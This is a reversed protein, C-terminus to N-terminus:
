HRQKVVLVTVPSERVVSESVSGLMLRDFGKRGHSGMVILDPLTDRAAELIQHAPTGEKRIERVKLGKKELVMRADALAQNVREREANVLDTMLEQQVPFIVGVSEEVAVVVVEEALHPPFLKAVQEAAEMSSASGDTALLIRM